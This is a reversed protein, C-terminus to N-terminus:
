LSNINESMKYSAIALCASCANSVNLSNISKNIEIKITENCNKKVLEKIGKDESGFVFAIKQPIEITRISIKSDHDLGVVWYNNNKLLKISQSINSVGILPMHEIGGSASKYLGFSSYNYNKKQLIIADVNFAVSTRIISGINRQDTINDLIVIISKKKDNLEQIKDNIDVEKIKKILCAIGQHKFTNSKFISDIQHNTKKEIIFKKKTKNKLNLYKNYNDEILLVKVIERKPNLIAEETAHKGGIWFSSEM